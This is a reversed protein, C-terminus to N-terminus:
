PKVQTWYSQNPYFRGKQMHNPAIINKYTKSIKWIQSYKSYRIGLHIEFGSYRAPAFTGIYRLKPNPTWNLYKTYM